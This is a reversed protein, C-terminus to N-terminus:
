VESSSESPADSETKKSGKAEKKSAKAKGQDATETDEEITKRAIEMIYPIAETLNLFFAFNKPTFPVTKGDEDMVGEWGIVRKAGLDFLRQTAEFESEASRYGEVAFATSTNFPRLTFTIAAKDEPEVVLTENVPNRVKGFNFVAM